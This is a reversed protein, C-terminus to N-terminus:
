NNFKLKLDTFYNSIKDQDHLDIDVAGSKNNLGAAVAARAAKRHEEVSQELMKEFLSLRDLADRERMKFYIEFDSDNISFYELAVKHKTKINEIKNIVKNTIVTAQNNNIYIM